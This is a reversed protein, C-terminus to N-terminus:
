EVTKLKESLAETLKDQIAIFTDLDKETFGKLATKIEQSLQEVYREYGECFRQGKATLSVVNARRDRKSMERKLYGKSEARSATQSIAGPTLGVENILDKMNVESLEKSANHIVVLLEAEKEYLSYKRQKHHYSNIYGTYALTFATSSTILRKTKKMKM